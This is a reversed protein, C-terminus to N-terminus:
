GGSNREEGDQQERGCQAKQQQPRFNGVGIVGDPGGGNRQAGEDQNHWQTLAPIHQQQNRDHEAKGQRQEHDEGKEESVVEAWTSRAREELDGDVLAACRDRRREAGEVADDLAVSKLGKVLGEVLEM